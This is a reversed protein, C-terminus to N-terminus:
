DLNLAVWTKSGEGPIERVLRPVLYGPLQQQLAAFLTKATALPTDFHAAGSVKDLLHLYYPLVGYAFLRHSLEVLTDVQDNIGALLVSQNLLWFGAGKLARLAPLMSEHLEQPHNCHLVMLKQWPRDQWLAIFDADLREPFVVPIRSHIRLTNVHEIQALRDLMDALTKDAALLPDGGSLIVEHISPEAAIYDLAAQWGQRGPNNDQYPFHRRFCYRCNIACSGTLTLLVRGQYKHLLGTQRNVAAEELPDQDYGAVEMLEQAQALVQLLLPDRPDGPRMRRAFGQPVRTKFSQEAGQSALAPDLQLFQLLETASQFGQALIKQWTM